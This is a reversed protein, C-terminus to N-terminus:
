CGVSAGRCGVRAPATDMIAGRELVRCIPMENECQQACNMQDLETMQTIRKADIVEAENCSLRRSDVEQRRTM